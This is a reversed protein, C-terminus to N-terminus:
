RWLHVPCLAHTQALSLGSFPRHRGSAPEAAELPRQRYHSVCVIEELTCVARDQKHFAENRTPLSSASLNELINYRLNASFVVLLSRYYLSLMISLLLAFALPCRPVTSTRCAM